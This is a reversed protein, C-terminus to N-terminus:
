LGRAVHRYVAVTDRAVDHWSFAEEVRKRGARGMQEALAPDDLVTNVADALGDHFREGVEYPVLVGTEGDVVVEPIGGVASAVVATGCAMAELNVIGMPEYLSPCVFVSAASFLQRLTAPDHLGAIRIVDGREHRLDDVAVDVEAGLETTDAAGVCLVIQTDSRFRRAAALFPLLGKQRSVRGVFLVVPRDPSIGYQDLADRDDTPYYVSTDIGNRIAFVRDETLFPLCELVDRRMWASVAIVADAARYACDEIWSSVGYGSHLQEAKWPRRLEMSHATIVHPISYMQNALHGALNTYWTHSHVVDAEALGPVMHASVTVARLAMNAGAMTAPWTHRRVHDPDGPHEREGYWGDVTVDVLDRLAPVLNGVHTGGGGYSDPPYERSLLGVRM